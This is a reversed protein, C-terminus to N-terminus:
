ATQNVFNELTMHLEDLTGNNDIIIDAMEEIATVQQESEQSSDKQFQEWTKSRDDKNETRATIREFRTRPDVRVAILKFNPLEKLFDIDSPRRIGETVILDADSEQVDKAVVKSMIDEGFHSRVFTSLAQMNAREVPVHIRRLMDRLMGSFRFSVAGHKEKLYNAITTKGAGMEGVVGIVRQAM